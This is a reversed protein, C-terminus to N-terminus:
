IDLYTYIIAVHVLVSFNNMKLKTYNHLYRPDNLDKIFFFLCFLIHM